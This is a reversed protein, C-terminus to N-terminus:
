SIPGDRRGSGEHDLDHGSGSHFINEEDPIPEKDVLDMALRWARSRAVEAEHYPKILCQGPSKDIESKRM